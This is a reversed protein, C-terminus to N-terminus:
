LLDKRLQLGHADGYYNRLQGINKYGIKRYLNLAETNDERVELFCTKVGREVFIREVESSLRLAIGRRRYQPSVDITLIHATLPGGEAQVTGMVFGVVRGKEKAVLTLSNYDALVHLLQRRTFAEKIFCEKEISCLKDLDTISATEVNVTM